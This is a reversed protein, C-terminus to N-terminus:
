GVGYSFIPHLVPRNLLDVGSPMKITVGDSSPNGVLALSAGKGWSTLSAGSSVLGTNWYIPPIDIDETVDVNASKEAPRKVYNIISSTGTAPLVISTSAQDRGATLYTKSIKNHSKGSTKPRGGPM